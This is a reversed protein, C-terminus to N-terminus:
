RECLVTHASNILARRHTVYTAYHTGGFFVKTGWMYIHLFTLMLSKSQDALFLIDKNGDRASSFPLGKGDGSLSPLSDMNKMQTLCYTLSSLPCHARWFLLLWLGKTTPCHIPPCGRNRSASSYISLPSTPVWGYTCSYILSLHFRM